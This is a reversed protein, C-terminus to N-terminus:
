NGLSDLAKKTLIMIPIHAGKVKFTTLTNNDKNFKVFNNSIIFKEFNDSNIDIVNGDGSISFDKIKIQKPTEGGLIFRVIEPSGYKNLDFEAVINQFQNSKNMKFYKRKWENTKKSKYLVQLLGEESSSFSFNIIFKEINVKPKINTKETPEVKKVEPEINNNKDTKCSVILGILLAIISIKISNKM